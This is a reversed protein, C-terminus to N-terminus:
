ESAEVEASGSAQVEANKRILNILSQAPKVTLKNHIKLGADQMANEAQRLLDLATETTITVSEIAGDRDIIEFTAPGRTLLDCRSRPIDRSM